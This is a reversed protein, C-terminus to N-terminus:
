FLYAFGITTHISSIDIKRDITTLANEQSSIEMAYETTTHFYEAGVKLSYNGTLKYIIDAGLNYCFNLNQGDSYGSITNNDYTITLTQNPPLVVSLGILAKLNFQFKGAPYSFTPGVLLNVYSWNGITFLADVDEDSLTPLENLVGLEELLGSLMSDQNPYNTAFSFAGGIGFYWTPIYSGDFSLNFGPQAYGNTNYDDIAAFHDLPFSPGMNLALYSDQAFSM